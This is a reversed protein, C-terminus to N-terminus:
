HDGKHHGDADEKHPADQVAAGGKPTAEPTVPPNAGRSPSSPLATKERVPPVAAAPVEQKTVPASIQGHAHGAEGAPAMARAMSSLGGFLLAAVALTGGLLAPLKNRLRGGERWAFATVALVLGIPILVASYPPNDIFHQVGGTVMGIGISLVFSVLLFSGLNLNRTNKNLVFEQLYNGVTFCVVGLVALGLYYTTNEGLGVHVIGGAIFSTSALLLFYALFPLLLHRWVSPVPSPSMQEVTSLSHLARTLVSLALACPLRV